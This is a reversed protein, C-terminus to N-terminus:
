QPETGTHRVFLWAIGTASQFQADEEDDSTGVAQGGASNGIAQGGSAYNVELVGAAVRIAKDGNNTMNGLEAYYLMDYQNQFQIKFRVIRQYEAKAVAWVAVLPLKADLLGGACTVRLRALSQVAALWASVRATDVM